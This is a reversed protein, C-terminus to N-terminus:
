QILVEAIAIIDRFVRFSCFLVLPQLEVARRALEVLAVETEIVGERPNRELNDTIRFAERGLFKLKGCAGIDFQGVEVRLVGLKIDGRSLECTSVRRLGDLRHCLACRGCRAAGKGKVGQYHRGGVHATRGFAIDM